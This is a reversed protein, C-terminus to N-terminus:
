EYMLGKLRCAVKICGGILWWILFKLRFMPGVSDFLFSGSLNGLLFHWLYNFAMAMFQARRCCRGTERWPSALGQGLACKLNNLSFFLFLAGMFQVRTPQTKFNPCSCHLTSERLTKCRRFWMWEAVINLWNFWSSRQCYLLILWVFKGKAIVQTERLQAIHLLHLSLPNIGASFNIQIWGLKVRQM